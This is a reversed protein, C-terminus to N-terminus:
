VAGLIPRPASQAAGRTWLYGTVAFWAYTVLSATRQTLGALTDPDVGTVVMWLYVFSVVTTALSYRLYATSELWDRYEVAFVLPAITIVMGIGYLGHLPSGMRFLGNSLMSIGFILVLLPSITAPRRASLLIGAAFLCASLGLALGTGNVLGAVPSGDVGMASLHQRLSHYGPLLLGVAIEILSLVPLVVAQGVLVSAVAQVRESPGRM